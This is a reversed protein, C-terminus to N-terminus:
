NGHEGKCEVKRPDPEWEGNGMCTASHPENLVHSPPCTFNVSTGEMAPHSHGSVSISDNRKINQGNAPSLPNGCNVLYMNHIHTHLHVFKLDITLIKGYHLTIITTSKGCRTAVISVNYHINYLLTLQVSSGESTEVTVLPFISVNYTVDNEQTWELTATVSNIGFFDSINVVVNSPAAYMIIIIM